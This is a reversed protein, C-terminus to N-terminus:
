ICGNATGQARGRRRRRPSGILSRLRRPPLQVIPLLSKTSGGGLVSVGGLAAAAIVVGVAALTIVRRRLRRVPSPTPALDSTVSIDQALRALAPALQRVNLRRKDLPDRETLFADLEDDSILHEDM